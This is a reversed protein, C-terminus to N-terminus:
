VFAECTINDKTRETVLVTIHESSLHILKTLKM